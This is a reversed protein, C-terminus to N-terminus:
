IIGGMRGISTSLSDLSESEANSLCFSIAEANELAQESYRAGPIPLVNEQRALWNLAIQAPTRGHIKGIEDLMSLLPELHNANRFQAMFRRLGSAKRGDRYKGSLVGSALPFYAILTVDLERCTELVGNLEPARNILSYNVQNSALTLGHESLVQAAQRMQKANYNSVGIQLIHGDKRSRALTHMLTKTSLITYPWHIQYLGLPINVGIRERSADLAKTISKATLRYPLPAFKTAIVTNALQDVSVVANIAEGLLRESRGRNYIEATDFFNIGSEVASKVVANVDTPISGTSVGGWTNTGIGLPRIYPGDFGLQINPLSQSM